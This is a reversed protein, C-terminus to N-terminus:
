VLPLLKGKIGGVCVKIIEGLCKQLLHTVLSDMKAPLAIWLPFASDKLLSFISPKGGKSWQMSKFYLLPKQTWKRRGEQLLNCMSRLFICNFLVLTVTNKLLFCCCCLSLKSSFVWCINVFCVADCAQWYCQIWFYSLIKRQQLLCALMHVLLLLGSLGVRRGWAQVIM